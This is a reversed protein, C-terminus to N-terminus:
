PEVGGDEHAPRDIVECLQEAHRLRRGEPRPGFGMSSPPPHHGGDHDAQEDAPTGPEDNSAAM